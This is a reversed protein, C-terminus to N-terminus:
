TRATMVRPNATARTQRERMTASAEQSHSYRAPKVTTVLQKAILIGNFRPLFPESDILILSKQIKAARRRNPGATATTMAMISAIM